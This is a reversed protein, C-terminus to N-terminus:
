RHEHVRLRVNRTKALAGSFAPGSISRGTNGVRDRGRPPSLARGEPSLTKTKELIPKLARKDKTRSLAIILSDVPSISPGFQGNRQIEM